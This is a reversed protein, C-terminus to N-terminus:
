LDKHPLFNKNSLDLVPLQYNETSISALLDNDLSLFNEELHQSSSSTSPFNESNIVSQDTTNLDKHPLFNENSLDLVPLQYNETSISALLDNDLSLFNEELHHPSSYSTSPFNERYKLSKNKTILDKPPLFDENSLNLVPLPYNEKSMTTSADNDLSLFEEELYSPSSFQTAFATETDIRAQKVPHLDQTFTYPRKTIIPASLSNTPIIKKPTSSSKSVFPLPQQFETVNSNFFCLNILSILTNISTRIEPNIITKNCQNVIPFLVDQIIILTNNHVLPDLSFSPPVSTCYLHQEIIKQILLSLDQIKDANLNEQVEEVTFTPTSVHSSSSYKLTFYPM